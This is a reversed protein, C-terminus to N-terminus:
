PLTKILQKLGELEISQQISSDIKRKSIASPVIHKRFICELTALNSITACEKFKRPNRLLHRRYSRSTGILLVQVVLISSNTKRLSYNRTSVESENRTRATLGEAEANQKWDTVRGGGSVSRRNFEILLVDPPCSSRDESPFARRM